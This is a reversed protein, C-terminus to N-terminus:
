KFIQDFENTFGEPGALASNKTLNKFIQKIESETKKSTTHRNLNEIEKHNLRPQNQTVVYKDM